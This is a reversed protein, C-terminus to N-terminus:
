FGLILLKFYKLGKLLIWTLEVEKPKAISM